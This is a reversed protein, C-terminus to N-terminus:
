NCHRGDFAKVNVCHNKRIEQSGIQALCISDHLLVIDKESQFCASSRWFQRYCHFVVWAKECRREIEGKAGGHWSLFLGLYRLEKKVKHKDNTFFDRRVKTCDKGQIFIIAECKDINSQMVNERMIEQLQEDYEDAKKELENVKNKEVTTTGALDAVFGTIATQVKQKSIPDEVLMQEDKNAAVEKM